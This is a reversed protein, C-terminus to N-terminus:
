QLSFNYLPLRTIHSYLNVRGHPIVRLLARTYKPALRGNGGVMRARGYTRITTNSREHRDAKAGIAM